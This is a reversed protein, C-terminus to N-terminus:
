DRQKLSVVFTVIILLIGGCLEVRHPRNLAGWLVEPPWTVKADRIADLCAIVGSLFGAATAVRRRKNGM